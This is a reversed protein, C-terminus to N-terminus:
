TLAILAVRFSAAGTVLATHRNAALSTLRGLQPLDVRQAGCWLAGEALHVEGAALRAPAPPAVGPALELTAGFTDAAVWWRRDDAFVLLQDGESNVTPPEGFEGGWGRFSGVWGALRLGRARGPAAPDLWPDDALCDCLEERNADAPAGLAMLALTGDIARAEALAQVRLVALGARWALLRGLRLVLHPDECRPALDVMRDIWGRPCAGSQGALRYAANSLAALLRLPDRAIPRALAPVLRRWTEEVWPQRAHPGVLFKGVLELGVEYAAGVTLGARDPDLTAVATALPDVLTALFDGFAGADLDPFRRKAEGFRRNFDRRGAELSTALPAGVLM